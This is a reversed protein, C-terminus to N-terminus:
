DLTEPSLLTYRPNYIVLEKHVTTVLGSVRMKVGPSIGAVKEQGLWILQLTDQGDFLDAQFYKRRNAPDYVIASVIGRFCGKERSKANAIPSDTEPTQVVDVM